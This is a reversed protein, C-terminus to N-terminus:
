GRTSDHEQVLLSKDSYNNLKINKVAKIDKSKRIKNKAVTKTKKVRQKSENKKLSKHKMGADANYSARVVSMEKLGSFYIVPEAKQNVVDYGRSLLISTGTWLNDRVPEGLVSTIITHKGKQAACVFCHKAVRTYGTKGGIMEDDSWLLENTNKVFIDAGDSTIIEKTRTNIIEKILPYRLSEKMIKALDYATIYQGHGPLGSSNVFHANEIGLQIMKANMMSVFASESGAVAEAIAVAAGNVSRMLALYLLDRVVFREKTKLKPSVSPTNAATESISVVADPDIKDLAVMATILKTTSAPQLKLNPNKAFLINENAGDIVVAARASIDDAHVSSLVCFVSFLIYLVSYLNPFVGAETTQGRVESKQSRNKM